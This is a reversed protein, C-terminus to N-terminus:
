PTERDVAVMVARASSGAPGIKMSREQAGYFCWGHPRTRRVHGAACTWMEMDANWRWRASPAGEARGQEAALTLRMEAIEADREQVRQREAHRERRLADIEHQLDAAARDQALKPADQLAWVVVDALGDNAMASGGRLQAATRLISTSVAHWRDLEARMENVAEAVDEACSSPEIGLATTTAERYTAFADCEARMEEAVGVLWPLVGESGVDFGLAEIRALLSPTLAILLNHRRGDDPSIGRSARHHGDAVHEPNAFASPLGCTPCTSM